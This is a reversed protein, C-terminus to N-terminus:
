SREYRTIRQQLSFLIIESFISLLAVTGGGVILLKTDNLVLGKFIFDGLGGAVIYSAQTASAIVEISATRIGTLILPMALPLQIRLLLEKKNMGMGEASEIVSKNINNFGLFTSILIPPVALVILAFLAPVVGVGLIPMVIVLIALSPIIRLFNFFNMIYHSVKESKFSVIGLTVGIIIGVSIAILSIIIHVRLADM